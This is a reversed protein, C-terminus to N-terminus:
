TGDLYLKSNAVGVDVEDMLQQFALFPQDQLTLAAPDGYCLAVVPSGLPTETLIWYKSQLLLWLDWILGIVWQLSSKFTFMSPWLPIGYPASHCVISGQHSPKTKNQETKIKVKKQIPLQLPLPCSGLSLTVLLCRAIPYMIHFEHFFILVIKKFSSPISRKNRNQLFLCVFLCVFM